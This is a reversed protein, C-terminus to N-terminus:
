NKSELQSARIKKKAPGLVELMEDVDVFDKLRKVVNGQADMFIVAPLTQAGYRDKLANNEATDDSVDFRLPVFDAM